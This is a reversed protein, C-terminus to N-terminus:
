PQVALAFEVQGQEDVAADLIKDDLVVAAQEDLYLTAGAQEVVKDAPEPNDTAAIAFSSQDGESTIRLGASEPLGPQTTIERVITSANETLTLM